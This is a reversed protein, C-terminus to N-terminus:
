ICASSHSYISSQIVKFFLVHPGFMLNLVDLTPSSTGTSLNSPTGPTRGGVEGDSGWKEHVDDLRRLVGVM